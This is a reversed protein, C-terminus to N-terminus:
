SEMSQILQVIFLLRPVKVVASINREATATLSTLLLAVALLAIIFSRTRNM